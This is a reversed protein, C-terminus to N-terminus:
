HLLLMKRSNSRKQDWFADYFTESSKRTPRRHSRPADTFRRKTRIKRRNAPLHAARVRLYIEVLLAQQWIAEAGFPGERKVTQMRAPPTGIVICVSCRLRRGRCVSIVGLVPIRSFARSFTRLRLTIKSQFYGVTGLSSDTSQM